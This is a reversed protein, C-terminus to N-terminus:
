ALNGGGDNFFAMVEDLSRPNQKASSGPLSAWQKSAVTIAGEIDGANILALAGIRDLLRMAALDQDEPSFSPLRPPGARLMNWTPKIFQYAGAATSVCIGNIFGLARCQDPRLRVGSKEGTNVPHDSFDKFRGGGYFTGYDAGTAVDAARHEARRIMYLFANVNINGGMFDRGWYDHSDSTVGPLGVGLLDLSEAESLADLAEPDNDTTPFRVDLAGGIQVRSSLWWLLAAGAGILAASKADARM